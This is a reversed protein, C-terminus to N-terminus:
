AEDWKLNELMTIWRAFHPCKDRINGIGIAKAIDPGASSKRGEYEPIIDIIQKSPATTPGDNIYEICSKSAAVQKLQEIQRTCNEFAIRFAVPDALLMTEYEHLQLHPLFHPHNIDVGFAVELAEIYPAPQVPNRINNEKGPFDTPLGYLDFLTSFYVQKGARQKLTNLIFKRIKVYKQHRGIGFIHHHDKEGVALTHIIGSGDPFLHPQLVQCCFGQETPGECFINLQKVAVTGRGVREAAM